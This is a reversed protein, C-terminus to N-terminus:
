WILVPYRSYFRLVGPQLTNERFFCGNQKYQPQGNTKSYAVANKTSIVIGHKILKCKETSNSTTLGKVASGMLAKCKAM